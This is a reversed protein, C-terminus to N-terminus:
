YDTNLYLLGPAYGGIVARCERQDNPKAQRGSSVDFLQAIGYPVVGGVKTGLAEDELQIGRRHCTLNLGPLVPTAALMGDDYMTRIMGDFDWTASFIPVGLTENAPYGSAFLKTKRPLDPFRARIRDLGTREAVYAADWIQVHRRLEHVYALGLVTSLALTIAVAGAGIGSWLRGILAGIVGFSGYAAVVLGFGALANVRNTVGFISPTYYPDAPIFMTWGLAAVVLGGGSLLLWERLGWELDGTTARDGLYLYAVLGAALVGFLVGLALTTDHTGVPLLTVSLIEGGGVVIEKLHALDHSPGSKTRATHTGVWLGGVVVVGLDIGWRARATRWGARAAYLAGASAILPLTIEYALISLLYLVAACAHWRWSRRSLGVLAVWLGALTLTISLTLQDGTAWLRTSDFWPYVITLAAIIWGHIRPVGLTRLVGYLMGAALLALTAAWALHHAMHMGFVWYTLPVYLVLVPRYLGISWFKSLVDTVSSGGRPQLTAAANSWDDLYFGGHRIHPTFALACVVSLGLWAFVVERATLGRRTTLSRLSDVM